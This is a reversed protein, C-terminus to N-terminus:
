THPVETVPVLSASPSHTHPLGLPRALPQTGAHGFQNAALRWAGAALSHRSPGSVLTGPRPAPTSERHLALGLNPYSTATGNTGQKTVLTSSLSRTTTRQFFLPFWDGHDM